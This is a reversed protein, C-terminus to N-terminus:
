KMGEPLWKAIKAAQKKTVGQAKRAEPDAFLKELAEVKKGKTM